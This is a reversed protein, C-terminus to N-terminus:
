ILCEQETCAIESGAASAIQMLKLYNVAEQRTDMPGVRGQPTEVFWAQAIQVIETETAM